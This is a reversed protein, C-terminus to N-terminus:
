DLEAQNSSKKGSFPRIVNKFKIVLIMGIVIAVLAVAAVTIGAIAGPSLVGSNCNSLDYSFLLAVSTPSYEPRTATGDRTACSPQGTLRLTATSFTSRSDNCFGNFSIVEFRGDITTRNPAPRVVELTGAFSACQTVQLTANESLSIITGPAITLTGNIVTNFGITITGNSLTVDGEVLWVGGICQAQPVPPTTSCGSLPPSVRVGDSCLHDKCAQTAPCHDDRTCIITPLVVVSTRLILSDPDDNTTAVINAGGNNEPYQIIDSTPSFTGEGHFLTTSLPTEGSLDVIIHCDSATLLFLNPSLDNLQTCSIPSTQNYVTSVIGTSFRFSVLISARPLLLVGDDWTGCITAGGARGVSIELTQNRIMQSGRFFAISLIQNNESLSIFSPPDPPIMSVPYVAPSQAAFSGTGVLNGAALLHYNTRSMDSIDAETAIVTGNQLATFTCSSLCNLQTATKSPTVFVNTASSNRYYIVQPFGNTVVWKPDIIPDPEVSTSVLNFDFNFIQFASGSTARALISFGFSSFAVPVVNLSDGTDLVLDSAYGQPRLPFAYSANAVLLFYPKIITDFGVIVMMYKGDPSFKSAYLTVTSASFCAESALIATFNWSSSTPPRSALVPLIDSSAPTLAYLLLLDKAVRTRLSTSYPADTVPANSRLFMGSQLMTRNRVSFFATELWLLEVGSSTFTAVAVGSYGPVTSVTLGLPVAGTSDCETLFEVLSTEFRTTIYLGLSPGQIHTSFFV